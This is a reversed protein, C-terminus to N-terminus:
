CYKKCQFLKRIEFDLVCVFTGSMFSVRKASGPVPTSSGSDPNDHDYKYMHFQIGSWSKYTKRCGEVPCQYPPKTARLNNCFEKVDFDYKMTSSRLEDDLSTIDCNLMIFKSRFLVYAPSSGTDRRLQSEIWWIRLEMQSGVRYFSHCRLLSM